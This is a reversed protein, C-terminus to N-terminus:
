ARARGLNGQLGRNRRLRMASRMRRATSMPLLVVRVRQWRTLGGLLGRRLQMVRIDLEEDVEVSRAYRAREEYAALERLARSASEQLAAEEVVRAATRRPSEHPLPGYGADEADDMADCWAAHALGVPDAARQRRRRRTLLRV